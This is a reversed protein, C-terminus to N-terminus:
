YNVERSLVSVVLLTTQGVQKLKNPDITEFTDGTTHATRDSGDWAIHATLASRGGFGPTFPLGFHPERGRTTTSVGMRGAADQFLQVLRFSSGQGLVIGKGDGAGVGSIEIVAEVTLLGFGLKANMVNKVSLGESREGGAWAVFVITKKSEYPSQKLVRAMELMAAVSSTNDNAGPYFAGDPGTGLGDYYASVIIVQNDLGRGQQPGMAAGTGAIFGIVNYCLDESNEPETVVTALRVTAGAGTLAVKGPALDTAMRELEALRSGATALLREATKPTIYMVPTPKYRYPDNQPFLFKRELARPDEGVVLVGAVARTNVREIEAERVLIVKDKLELNSLGYPDSGSTGPHPGTVLGIVAGTGQGYTSFLGVYEAFDRRYTLSEAVNGQGDLIELRPVQALHLRSCSTSAQIFTNNEGAPFLGIDEMRRAIYQAALKAGPTGTERGEFQPSSLVRIDERARQSDFKLAQPRYLEIPTTSRLVWGLGFILVGITLLTYRNVLRSVNIRTEELLRRLGESFLNFALIAIFFAVGPYWAMWPSSRWWNRINALQAGWEPVDSFFFIIASRATEGFEAKYGGGLFINLFGLEALLMLVGGMELAALVLLPALLHPLVHWTLIRDSRAGVARAAEIYLQPKIGIVQGRVFQAIEGWGVVCLAVIFIGMGQQIGLALILIMAFLTIPFAAWVGVAGTVLRDFWSGQWWGALVGLITGLLVRAVTGALALALTQKAGALVLARVDRGVPDSGWPFVTSPRYPPANIVGEIMMIGHTEYPNAQTLREGLFALGFFALVLLTGIVLTPNGLISRLTHWRSSHSAFQASDSTFSNNGVQVPLPALDSPQRRAGPLWQRLDRWWEALADRLNILREQWTPQEEQQEEFQANGRLRPDVVQYVVELALNILLFLFGLSMVLDTVLFPMGLEIAQLLTLGVGPWIFFYEVVPLSALSFRLSTGLTTLIPILVNRLAHRGLVVRQALGKAQATRVYDEGLVNSMSVYTVQVIQALPRAALVLTPMVLHADWGFGTPPLPATGFQRYVQINVVWLLMALLFSPTSIGLVSLLLVLPAAPVRRFLAVMMGLPVGIVTAIGLSYLLLGASRGFLTLILDLASVNERHWYFTAPHGLLYAATRRLAEGAANLPQAPLGQRGREALILGFMTLWAIVLLTALAIGLRRLISRFDARDALERFTM